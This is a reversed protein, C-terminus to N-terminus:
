PRLVLDRIEGEVRWGSAVALERFRELFLERGAHFRCSVLALGRPALLRSFEALAAQLDADSFLFRGGILGNCLIADHQQRIPVQNASGVVFHCPM